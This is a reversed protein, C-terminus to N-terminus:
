EELKILLSRAELTEPLAELWLKIDDPIPWPEFIPRFPNYVFLNNGMTGDARLAQMFTKTKVHAYKEYYNGILAFSPFPYNHGDHPEHIKIFTGIPFSFNHKRHSDLELKDWRVDADPVLLKLM